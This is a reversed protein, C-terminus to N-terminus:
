YNLLVNSPLFFSYQSWLHRKSLPDCWLGLREISEAVVKLSNGVEQVDSVPWFCLARRFEEPLSSIERRIRELQLEDSVAVLKQVTPNSKARQLNLILSDISGSRHVEFVYTVSGLNGIHARWVVDVTAGHAIPVESNVDFGLNMGISKVLDKVEDHDFIEAKSPPAEKSTVHFLFFDVLLLDVLNADIGKSVIEKGIVHLLENFAEYESGSLRYKEPPVFSELGLVKIAERARRNWIGCRSPENYCMMETVSAPGLHRIEKLWREYRAGPAVGQKFLNRLELRLKDIGNDMLVKQAVYQKNGWMGTAWLETVIQTLEAESLEELKAPLEEQFYRVRRVRSTQDESFAPTKMYSRFQGIYPGLTKRQEETVAIAM